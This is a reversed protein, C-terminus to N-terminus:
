GLALVLAGAQPVYALTPLEDPHAKTVEDFLRALERGSSAAYVKGHILIVHKGRYARSTLIRKFLAASTRRRRRARGM